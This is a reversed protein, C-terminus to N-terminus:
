SRDRWRSSLIVSCVDVRRFAPDKFALYDDNFTGYTTQPRRKLGEYFVDIIAHEFDHGRPYAAVVAKRQDDPIEEYGRGVVDLAAAMHVLAIEPELHLPIGPTTHLAIALWAKEVNREPVSHGRLFDRAANAGDIEFRLASEQFGGTLGFDHFM